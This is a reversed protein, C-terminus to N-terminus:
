RADVLKYLDGFRVGEALAATAEAASLTGKFKDPAILVHPARSPHHVPIRSM